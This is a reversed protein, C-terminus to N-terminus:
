LMLPVRSLRRRIMDELPDFDDNLNRVPIPPLMLAAAEPRVGSAPSFEIVWIAMISSSLMLAAMVWPPPPSV